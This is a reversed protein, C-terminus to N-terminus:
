PGCHEAILSERTEPLQIVMGTRDREEDTFPEAGEEQNEWIGDDDAVFGTAGWGGVNVREIVGDDRPCQFLLRISYDSGPGALEFRGDTGTKGIGVWSEYGGIQVAAYVDMNPFPAGDAGLVTGSVQWEFPQAVELRHEEFAALFDILSIGFAAEFAGAHGGFRFFALIAEPGAREVLLETALFGVNYAYWDHEDTDLSSRFLPLPQGLGSWLRQLSARRVDLPVRGQEESVLTSAYVASGEVLWDLWPMQSVTGRQRTSALSGAEQQLIHFYEHALPWGIARDASGCDELVILIVQSAAAGGCTFWIGREAGREALGENLSALDTVLAVTFDSMVAGFHKAYVVQATKLELRISEREDSTFDGAFVFEVEAVGLEAWREEITKTDSSGFALVFGLVVALVLVAALAVLSAIVRRSLAIM